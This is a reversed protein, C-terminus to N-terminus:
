RDAAPILLRIIVVFISIASLPPMIYLFITARDASSETFRRLWNLRGAAYPILAVAALPLVLLVAPMPLAPFSTEHKLQENLFMLYGLLAAALSAGRAVFVDRFWPRPLILCLVVPICLVVVSEVLAMALSFALAGLIEWATLFIRWSPFRYLFWLITWSYTMLVIIGLV